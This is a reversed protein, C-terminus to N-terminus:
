FGEDIDIDNLWDMSKAGGKKPEPPPPAQLAAGQHLTRYGLEALFRLEDRVQAQSMGSLHQALSGTVKLRVRLLLGDSATRAM